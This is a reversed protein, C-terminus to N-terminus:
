RESREIMQDKTTMEKKAEERNMWQDYIRDIDEDSLIIGPKDPRV